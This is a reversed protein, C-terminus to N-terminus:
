QVIYEITLGKNKFVEIKEIFSIFYIMRFHTKQQTHKTEPPQTFEGAGLKTAAPLLM